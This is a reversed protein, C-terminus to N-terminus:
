GSLKGFISKRQNIIHFCFVAMKILLDSHFYVSFARRTLYNKM